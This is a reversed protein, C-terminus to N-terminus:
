DSRLKVCFDTDCHSDTDSIFGHWRKRVRICIKRDCYTLTNGFIARENSISMSLAYKKRVACACTGSLTYWPPMQGPFVRLLATFALLSYRLVTELLAAMRYHLGTQPRQKTLRKVYEIRQRLKLTPLLSMIQQPTPFRWWGHIINAPTTPVFTPSWM